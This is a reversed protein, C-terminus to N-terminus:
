GRRALNPEPEALGAKEEQDADPEAENHQVAPRVQQKRENRGRTAAFARLFTARNGVVAAAIAMKAKLPLMSQDSPAAMARPLMAPPTRPALSAMEALAFFHIKRRRTVTIVASSM